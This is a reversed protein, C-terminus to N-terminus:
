DAKRFALVIMQRLTPLAMIPREEFFTRSLAHAPALCPQRDRRVIDGQTLRPNVISGPALRGLVEFASRRSRTKRARPSWVRRAKSARSVRPGAMTVSSASGNLM